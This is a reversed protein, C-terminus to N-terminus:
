SASHRLLRKFNDFLESVVEEKSIYWLHSIRDVVHSTDHPLAPRKGVSVFPGDTELLVLERPVRNLILAFRKGRAMSPNVSIYFEREIAKDLIRLSGSYWHLIVTGQFRDGFTAVM